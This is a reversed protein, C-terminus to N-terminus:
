GFANFNDTKETQQDRRSQLLIQNRRNTIQKLILNRPNQSSVHSQRVTTRDTQSVRQEQIGTLAIADRLSAIENREQQNLGDQDHEHGQGAM